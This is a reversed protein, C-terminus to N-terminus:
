NRRRRRVLVRYSIM